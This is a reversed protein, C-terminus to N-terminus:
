CLRVASIVRSHGTESGAGVAIADCRMRAARRESDNLGRCRFAMAFSAVPSQSGDEDSFEPTKGEYCNM